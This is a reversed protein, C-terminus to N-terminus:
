DGKEPFIHLCDIETNIMNVINKNTIDIDISTDDNKLSGILHEFEETYNNINNMKLHNSMGQLTVTIQNIDVSKVIINYNKAILAAVIPSSFSTGSYEHCENNNMIAAVYGNAYVEPKSNTTLPVLNMNEDIQCEKNLAGVTIVNSSCGPCSITHNPYNINSNGGSVVIIVGYDEQLKKFREEWLCAGNCNNYFGLSINIINVNKQVLWQLAKIISETSNREDNCYVQAVYLESPPYIDKIISCILASHIQNMDCDNKTTFNEYKSYDDFLYNNLAGDIVGIKVKNMPEIKNDKWIKHPIYKIKMKM